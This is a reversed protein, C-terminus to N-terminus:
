RLCHRFLFLWPIQSDLVCNPVVSPPFQSQRMHPLMQASHTVKSVLGSVSQSPMQVNKHVRACSGQGARGLNAPSVVRM